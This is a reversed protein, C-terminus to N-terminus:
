TTLEDFDLYVSVPLFPRTPFLHFVDPEHSSCDSVGREPQTMVACLRGTLTGSTRRLPEPEQSKIGTGSLVRFTNQHYPFPQVEDLAPGAKVWPPGASLYHSWILRMLCAGPQDHEQPHHGWCPLPHVPVIHVRYDSSSQAYSTQYRCLVLFGNMFM